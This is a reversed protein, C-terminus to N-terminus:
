YNMIPQRNNLHLTSKRIKAKKKQVQMGNCTVSVLTTNPVNMLKCGKGSAVGKLVINKAEGGLLVNGAANCLEADSEGHNFLGMDRTATFLEGLTFKKKKGFKAMTLILWGSWSAVSMGSEDQLTMMWSGKVRTNKSIILLILLIVSRIKRSKM